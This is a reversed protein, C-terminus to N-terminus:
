RQALLGQSMEVIARLQSKSGDVLKRSQEALSAVRQKARAQTRESAGDRQLLGLDREAQKLEARAARQTNRGAALQARAKAIAQRNLDLLPM